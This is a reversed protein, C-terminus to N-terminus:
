NFHAWFSSLMASLYNCLSRNFCYCFVLESM